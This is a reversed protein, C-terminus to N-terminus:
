PQPPESGGAALLRKEHEITERGAQELKWLARDLVEREEPALVDLFAGNRAAAAGILGEYTQQGKKTLTLRVARGDQEDSRRLVLRRETLATVVRSALGKDLDVVKALENLSLGPRAGILAIARWEWLSVDFRRRYHMAAGRSMINGVLQLRYSVLSTITIPNDDPGHDPDLMLTEPKTM